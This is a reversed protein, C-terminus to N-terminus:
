FTEGNWNEFWELCTQHWVEWAQDRKARLTEFDPAQDSSQDPVQALLDSQDSPNAETEMKRSVETASIIGTTIERWYAESECIAQEADRVREELMAYREEAPEMKECM